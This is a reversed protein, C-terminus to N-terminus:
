KEKLSINISFLLFLLAITVEEEEENWCWKEQEASNQQNKVSGGPRARQRLHEEMYHPRIKSGPM